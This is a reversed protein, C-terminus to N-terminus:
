RNMKVFVLGAIIGNILGSILWTFIILFSLQFSSYTIFMGPIGAILFYALGFNVARKGQGGKFLSKSKDWAWALIIGLLFPYAFYIQMLPDSWPRFLAINNYEAAVSPFIFNFLYSVGMGIILMLVGALIGPLIVKKM